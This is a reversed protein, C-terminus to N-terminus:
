EECQSEKGEGQRTADDRHAIAIQALRTTVGGREALLEGVELFGVVGAREGFVFVLRLALLQEFFLLLPRQGRSLDM